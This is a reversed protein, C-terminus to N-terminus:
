KDLAEVRDYDKEWVSGNDLTLYFTLKYKGVGSTAPYDLGVIVINTSVTPTGNILEATVNTGDEKYGSVSASSVSSNYPIGGKGYATSPTTIRFAYENDISAPQLTIDDTGKFDPM